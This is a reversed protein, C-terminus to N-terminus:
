GGTQNDPTTTCLSYSNNTPPKKLYHFTVGACSGLACTSYALIHLYLATVCPPRSRPLDVLPELALRPTLRARKQGEIRALGEIM